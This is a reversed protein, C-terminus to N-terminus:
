ISKTNVKFIGYIDGDATPGTKQLITLHVWNLICNRFVIRVMVTLQAIDSIGTTDVIQLAVWMNILWKKVSIANEQFM